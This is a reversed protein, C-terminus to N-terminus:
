ILSHLSLIPCSLLGEREDLDKKERKGIWNVIVDQQITFSDRQGRGGGWREPRCALGELWSGVEGGCARWSSGSGRSGRSLSGAM